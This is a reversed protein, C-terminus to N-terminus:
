KKPLSALSSEARNRIVRCTTLFLSVSVQCRSVCCYWLFPIKNWPFCVAWFFLWFHLEYAIATTNTTKLM